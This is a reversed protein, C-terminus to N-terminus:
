SENNTGHFIDLFVAILLLSSGSSHGSPCGYEKECIIAKINPDALYPRTQAYM